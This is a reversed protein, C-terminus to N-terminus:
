ASSASRPTKKPDAIPMSPHYLEAPEAPQAELLIPEANDLLTTLREFSSAVLPPPSEGMVRITESLNALRLKLDSIREAAGLLSRHSVLRHWLIQCVISLPPSVLIGYLGMADFMALFLTLTLVPNNWKEKLLRPEVWIQLVILVAMTYLGGVLGLQASTLFGILLVPLIALGAGIVPILWALAAILALTVPYPLGLLWYGLVFLVIALLSQIAESRVYAGLAAEITQWIDRVQKRLEPPLLSLWLREFHVQNISWYISLLLVIAAGSLFQGTGQTFIFLAPLVLQGEDGTIAEFLTDPSPMWIVLTKLFSNGSLWQPLNWADHLSLTIVFEGVESFSTRGVLYIAYGLAGLSLLYFALLGLRAALGRRSWGRLLPRLSAALVLSVLVYVVVLRFQWLALLALLTVMVAMAFTAVKKTM